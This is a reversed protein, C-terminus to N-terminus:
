RYDKPKSPRDGTLCREVSDVSWKELGVNRIEEIEGEGEDLGLTGPGFHVTPEAAPLTCDMPLNVVTGGDGGDFFTSFASDALLTSSHTPSASTEPRSAVGQRSIAPRSGSAATGVRGVPQRSPSLPSASASLSHASPSASGARKGGQMPSFLAPAQSTADRLGWTSALSGGGTSTTPTKRSVRIPSPLQGYRPVKASPVPLNDLLCEFFTMRNFARRPRAAKIGGGKKRAQADLKQPSATAARSLSERLLAEGNLPKSGKTRHTASASGSASAYLSPLPEEEFQYEEKSTDDYLQKHTQPEFFEEDEKIPAPATPPPAAVHPREEEPEFDGEYQDNGGFSVEQFGPFGAASEDLSGGINFANEFGIKKKSQTWIRERRQLRERKQEELDCLVQNFFVNHARQFFRKKFRLEAIPREMQLSELQVATLFHKTMRNLPTTSPIVTRCYQTQIATHSLDPFTQTSYYGAQGPQRPIHPASVLKDLFPRRTHEM